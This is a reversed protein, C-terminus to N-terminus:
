SSILTAIDNDVFQELEMSIKVMDTNSSQKSARICVYKGTHTGDVETDDDGATVTVIASPAPLINAAKALALTTGTPIVELTLTQKANYFIKGLTQGTSGRLEAQEAETAFQASQATFTGIGTGTAGHSLGWVVALTGVQSEAM